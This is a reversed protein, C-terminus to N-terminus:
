YNNLIQNVYKIRQEVPTEVEALDAPNWIEGTLLMHYAGVLIKRAIAIFACKKGRRKSIKNFKNAYYPHNKDKVAAHAVEVLCPKLYVGARSIRVSKKKGASQNSSSTLGAWSTLRRTSTFQNMDVGIESLITIASNISVGPIQCLFSIYDEYPEIMLDILKDLRQINSSLQKIHDNVLEIRSKQVPTLDTGNISDLDMDPSAKCKKHVKSLIDEDTYTNDSLILDIINSASKGFVDTFVMDLKCNGSTLANQFRNKESSRINVLKYMYRTLERLIRFDKQPIFSSRVIGFKFLDAICKADKDDDKEGKVARVWKPNAVVINSIHSELVNYVPIYYKGTSEM